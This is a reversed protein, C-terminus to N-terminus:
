SENKVRGVPSVGSVALRPLVAAGEDSAGAVAITVAVVVIDAPAAAIAAVAPTATTVAAIATPATATAIAAPATALVATIVTAIAIAAPIAAAATITSSAPVTPLAAVAVTVSTIAAVAAISVAITVVIVCFEDRGSSTRCRVSVKITQRLCGQRRVPALHGATVCGNDNVGELSVYSPDCRVIARLHHIPLLYPPSSISGTSICCHFVVVFDM